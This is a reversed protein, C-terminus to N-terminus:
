NIKKLISWTEEPSNVKFLKHKRKDKKLRDAIPYDNGGKEMKDGFFYVEGNIDDLVQAKNGGKQYIDISIQGGISAEIEPFNEMLYNCITLREKHIQDWKYYAERQTQSCDRGIVSFNVLGVRQEIHNGCKEKWNSSQLFMDLKSEMKNSLHFNSEKILKGNQWVQNGCSQYVKTVSQWIDIGIQEITKEKDSGTVLYIQKNLIWQKLFFEFDKDIPLRSPTLTGDIDFM